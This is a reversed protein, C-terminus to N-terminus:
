LFFEALSLLSGELGIGDHFFASQEHFDKVSLVFAVCYYVFKLNHSTFLHIFTSITFCFTHHGGACLSTM